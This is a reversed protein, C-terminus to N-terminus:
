SGFGYSVLLMVGYRPATKTRVVDGPPLPMNAVLGDGLVKSQPDVRFGLGINWSNNDYTALKVSPNSTPVTYHPQRFGIMWGISFGYILSNNGASTGTDIAVFPGHGWTNAPVAAAGLHLDTQPVFFYHSEAVISAIVNSSSDDVRVINNPASVTLVRRQGQVDFSLGFGIGLTVGGFTRTPPTAEVMLPANYAQVQGPPAAPYTAPAPLVYYPADGAFSPTAALLFCAGFVPLYSGDLTVNWKECSNRDISVMDHFYRVSRLVCGTVFAVSQLRNVM